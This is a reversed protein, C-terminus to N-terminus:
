TRAARHDRDFAAPRQIGGAYELRSWRTRRRRWCNGGEDAGCTPAFMPWSASTWGAETAIPIAASGCRPIARPRSWSRTLWAQEERAGPLNRSCVPTGNRREGLERRHADARMFWRGYRRISDLLRRRGGGCCGATGCIAGPGRASISPRARRAPKRAFSGPCGHAARSRKAWNVPLRVFDRPRDSRHRFTVLPRPSRRWWRWAKGWMAQVRWRGILHRSHVRRDRADPDSRSLIARRIGVASLYRARSARGPIAREGGVVGALVAARHIRGACVLRAGSSVDGAAGCRDGAPEEGRYVPILQQPTRPPEDAV